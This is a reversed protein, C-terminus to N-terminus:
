PTDKYGELISKLELVYKDYDISLVMNNEDIKLITIEKGINFLVEKIQDELSMTRSEKMLELRTVTQM